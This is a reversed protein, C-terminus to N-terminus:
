TPSRARPRRPRRSLQREDARPFLRAGARASRGPFGRLRDWDYHQVKLKALLDDYLAQEDNSAVLARYAEVKAKRERTLEDADKM